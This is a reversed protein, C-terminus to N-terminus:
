ESRLAVVPDVRTARRSPIYCALSATAVFLAATSAFTAADHPDIGFLLGVLSQTALYSGVLGIGVGIATLMLGQQLVGRMVAGADAGLAMRVGFEHWRAGVTYALVGYLGIVALSLAVIACGLSLLGHFRSTASQHALGQELTAANYAALQPDLRHVADRAASITRRPDSSTRVFVTLSRIGGSNDPLLYLAPREREDFSQKSDAVVGVIEPSGLWDAWRLRRGIVPGAPIYRRVFSENVVVGAAQNRVDDAGFERGQRVPLRITEFYRPTVVHYRIDAEGAPQGDIFLADFGIGGRGEGAVSEVGPLSHLEASLGDFFRSRADAAAYRNRPLEVEFKVVGKPEYGLDVRVLRIFSGVLLGSGTVLVMAAAIEVVVLVSSPRLRRHITTGPSTRGHLEPSVDSHGARLASVLGVVLGAALSVALAFTLITGDVRVDRIRPVIHPPLSQVAGALAFALLCGLAGGALALLLAEAIGERVIRTRSAGLAVRIAIERRRGAARTLLLNVVNVAAILLILVVGTQFILLVRRAALGMEDRASVLGLPLRRGNPLPGALSEVETAAQDLSVGPELLAWAQLITYGSSPGTRTFPPMPLWFEPVEALDGTSDREISAGALSPFTFHAPMVGVVRTPVEDLVIRRDIIREDGGFYRRWTREALVVVPDAGPAADEDQFARGLVLPVGLGGLLGTSATAGSLRVTIAVGTLTRSAPAFVGVSELTAAHDQLNAFQDPTLGARHREGGEDEPELTQVIQVLREANPFPLPRLLVGYVASFVTTTAGIGLALTVVAVATFGPNRRLGRAALRLDRTVFEM